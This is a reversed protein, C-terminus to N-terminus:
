HRTRRGGREIVEQLRRPVSNIYRACAEPTLTALEREIAREYEQITSCGQADVVRQVYAWLNEVPNLDPSRAPWGELLECARFRGQQSKSLEDAAVAHCPDGDQQLVWRSRRTPALLRKGEPLFTNRIVVRYEDKTINRAKTGKQTAFGGTHSTSGAVAHVKTCGHVTLGVYINYVKPPNAVTAAPMEEGEEVYTVPNVATGPFRLRFAKRDTFMVQTWDRMLNARAFAVRQAMTAPKLQETPRGRRAKLKKPSVRRASRLVTAKTLVRDTTGRAKLESAVIRPGGMRPDKLMARAKEAAARSLVPKAGRGPKEDVGGTQEHTEVWHRVTNSSVRFVKAVRAINRVAKYAGVIQWRLPLPTSVM